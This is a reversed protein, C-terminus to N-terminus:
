SGAQIIQSAASVAQEIPIAFGIGISGSSSSSTAIASNLGVVNGDVDVLAGGSNGANTPADTQIADTLSIPQRDGSDTPNQDASDVTRHLASVIGKTVSNELGLPNGIALVTDGVRLNDSSGITAPTLGSVGEARIVAVDLTSSQGLLTASATSGDALRVTIAGGSAASSVVHRNTLIKGDPSLVIGSGEVRGSGGSVTISVVSRAAKAAATSLDTTTSATRTSAVSGSTTTGGAPHNGAVAAALAGGAVGGGFVTLVLAGAAVGRRARRRDGRSAPVPSPVPLNEAM